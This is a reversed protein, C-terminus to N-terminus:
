SIKYIIINGRGKKIKEVIGKHELEAIMLSIKAESLPIEQRIEKQTIRKHEKLLKLLQVQEKDEFQNLAATLKTDSKLIRRYRYLAYLIAFFLLIVFLLILLKVISFGNGDANSFLLDLNLEPTTDDEFSSFLILDLKYNGEKTISINEQIDYKLLKNESYQANIIYDGTPLEFQYSGDKSIYQQPPNSNVKIVVDNLKDLSDDYVNGSITAAIATNVFLFLVILSSCLLLFIHKSQM